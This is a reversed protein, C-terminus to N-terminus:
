RRSSRFTCPSPYERHIERFARDKDPVLNLVCNSIIVDVSADEVPLSEIEGKRFEVNSLGTKAAITRAQELMADTMDVGVM